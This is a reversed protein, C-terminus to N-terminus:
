SPVESEAHRKKFVVRREKIIQPRPKATVAGGIAGLMTLLVTGVLVHIRASEVRQQFKVLGEDVGDALRGLRPWAMAGAELAFRTGLLEIMQERTLGSLSRMDADSPGIFVADLGLYRTQQDFGRVHGFLGFCLPFGVMLALIGFTLGRVVRRPPDELFVGTHWGDDKVQRIPTKTDIQGTKFLQNLRGASFTGVENGGRWYYWRNRYTFWGDLAFPVLFITIIILAGPLGLNRQSEGPRTPGELVMLLISPIALIFAPYLILRMIPHM